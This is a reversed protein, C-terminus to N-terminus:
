LSSHNIWLRTCQKIACQIWPEGGSLQKVVFKM